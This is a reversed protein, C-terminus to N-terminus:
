NIYDEERGGGACLVKFDIRDLFHKDRLIRTDLNYTFDSGEPAYAGRGTVHGEPVLGLAAGDQACFAVAVQDIPRISVIFRDHPGMNEEVALAIDAGKKAACLIPEPHIMEEMTTLYIVSPGVFVPENFNDKSLTIFRTEKKPEFIIVTRKDNDMMGTILYVKRIKSIITLREMDKETYPYLPLVVLTEIYLTELREELFDMPNIGKGPAFFHTDLPMPEPLELTDTISRFFLLNAYLRHYTHPKRSNLLKERRETFSFKGKKNLPIDALMVRSDESKEGLLMDGVPSFLHSISETCNFKEEIGTRNCAIFWVGNEM